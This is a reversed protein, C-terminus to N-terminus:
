LNFIGNKTVIKKTFIKNHIDINGTIISDKIISKGSINTNQWIISNELKVDDSIKINESLSNGSTKGLLNRFTENAYFYSAPTGLDFWPGRYEMVRIKSDALEISDFLNEKHLKCLYKNRFISVGAYMLNTASPNKDRKVFFGNKAIISSYGGIKKRVLIVGEAMSNDLERILSNVPIKLFTDGNIVLLDNEILEAVSSLIKNGSLVNEELYDIKLDNLKCKTIKSALHHINIFGNKLGSDFLQKGIIKLLPIGDLPFMPKPLFDTLPMARKGFGGALIFFDTL